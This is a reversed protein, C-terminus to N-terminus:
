QQLYGLKRTVCHLIPPTNGAAAGTFWETPTTVARSDDALLSGLVIKYATTGPLM